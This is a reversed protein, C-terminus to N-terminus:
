NRYLTVCIAVGFESSVLTQLWGTHKKKEQLIVDSISQHVEDCWEAAPIEWTFPTNQFGLSGLFGWFESSMTNFSDFFMNKHPRSKNYSLLNCFLFCPAFTNRFQLIGTIACILSFSCHSMYFIRWGLSFSTPKFVKSHLITTGKRHKSAERSCKFSLFFLFFLNRLKNAKVVKMQFSFNFHTLAM